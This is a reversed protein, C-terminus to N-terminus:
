KVVLDSPAQTQALVMGIGFTAGLLCVKSSIKLRLPMTHLLHKEFEIEFNEFLIDIVWNLTM